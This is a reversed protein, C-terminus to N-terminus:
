LDKIVIIKHPAPKNGGFYLKLKFRVWSNFNTLIHYVKAGILVIISKDSFHMKIDIPENLNVEVINNEDITRAGNLYSYTTLQIKGNKYRWAVRVSWKHTHRLGLTGGLLKNWDDQDGDGLSYICTDTFTYEGGLKKSWTLTPWWESKHNNEKVILFQM